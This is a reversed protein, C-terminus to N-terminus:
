IDSKTLCVCEIHYLEIYCGPVNCAIWEKSKDNETTGCICYVHSKDKTKMVKGLQAKIKGVNISLKDPLTTILGHDILRQLYVV